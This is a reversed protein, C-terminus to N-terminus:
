SGPGRLEVVGAPKLEGSKGEVRNDAVASVAGPRDIAFAVPPEGSLSVPYWFYAQNRRFVTGDAGHAAHYAVLADRVLNLEVVTGLVSAAPESAAAPGKGSTLMVGDGRSRYFTNHRIVNGLARPFEIPLTGADGNVLLVGSSCEEGVNAEIQNFFLPSVGRNWTRPMSSALTTANGYLYFAPRRQRLITNGYAVNELCSIWLQIGTMGDTVRNEGILNQYFATGVAVLSGATPPTRWPRDLRLTAGDRGVVRRTQGRGAGAFVSVYYEGLPPEPSEDWADPPWYPTEQGAADHALQERKVNGLRAEPTASLTAPLTVSQSGGAALAGFFMTRHNGEFLIMEGVNNDTGAVGGFQLPRDSESSRNRLFANRTISGRGTSVWILRRATPGGASAAPPAAAVNGEILCEEIVENRGEIAAEANGGYRTASVLRNAALVSQKLGSLFLPARGWLENSRVEAGHAFVLHVARNAGEKGDLDAVRCDRLRCDAVWGGDRARVLVGTNSQPTGTVTVGELGAGDGALWVVAREGGPLVGERTVFAEPLEAQIVVLGPGPEPFPQEGPQYDERAALVLADLSIGGGKENRWTLMRAGAPLELEASRAWRFTGFGGTNPLNELSVPAGQDVRLSMAGSVGPQGWPAMDTAYRLWVQYRGAPANLRWTITDGVT